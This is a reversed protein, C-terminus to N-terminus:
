VAGEAFEGRVDGGNQRGDKRGEGDWCGSAARTLRRLWGRASLLSIWLDTLSCASCRMSGRGSVEGRGKTRKENGRM